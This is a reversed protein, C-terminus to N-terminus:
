DPGGTEGEKQLQKPNLERRIKKSNALLQKELSYMNRLAAPKDLSAQVNQYAARLGDIEGQREPAAQARMGDLQALMQELLSRIKKDSKREHIAQMIERDWVKWLSYHAEYREMASHTAPPYDIPNLIPQIRSDEKDKKKQRIFKKRLPECGACSMVFLCLCSWVVVTSSCFSKKTKNKEGM